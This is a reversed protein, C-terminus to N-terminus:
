DLEEDLRKLQKKKYLKIIISKTVLPAILVLAVQILVFAWVPLLPKKANVMGTGDVDIMGGNPDDLGPDIPTNDVVQIESEFSEDFTSINGNSDEYSIHLTGTGFGEVMPTVNLEWSKGTGPEVNGIMVMSGAADFDGEVSATVNYLPSKGMNYFEFSMTTLEGFRPAEWYGVMINSVM